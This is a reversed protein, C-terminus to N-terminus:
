RNSENPFGELGSIVGTSALVNIIPLIILGGYGIIFLMIKMVDGTFCMPVRAVSDDDVNALVRDVLLCYGMCFVCLVMGQGFSVVGYLPHLVFGCFVSVVIWYLLIWIKHKLYFKNTSEIVQTLKTM